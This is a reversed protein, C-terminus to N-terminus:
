NIRVRFEYNADFEFIDILVRKGFEAARSTSTGFRVCVFPLEPSAHELVEYPLGEAAALSVVKPFYEDSWNARPFALELELERPKTGTAYQSYQIFKNWSFRPRVTLFASPIDCELLQGLAPELQDARRAAGRSIPVLWISILGVVLLSAVVYGMNFGSSPVWNAWRM